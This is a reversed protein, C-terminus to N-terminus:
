MRPARRRDALLEQWDEEGEGVSANLSQDAANLRLDMTEVEGVDVKLTEAIKRRGADSLPAGPGDAVRARLRRLNFFLSKQAATTGTRVISWNRLVYDQMASRIWWAAYTSFRVDRDPDFRQTAQMLGITGEQVLDAIPLGYNRFRAATAIVLRTHARVLEHLAAIDRQDRWATALAFERDRSLLPATMSTRIFGLNARQTELDDIHAMASGGM